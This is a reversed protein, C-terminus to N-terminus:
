VKQSWEMAYWCLIFKWEMFALMGIFHLKKPFCGQPQSVGAVVVRSKPISHGPISHGPISHGPISHDNLVLPPVVHKSILINWCDKSEKNGRKKKLSFLLCLGNSHRSQNTRM